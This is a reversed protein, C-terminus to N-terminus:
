GHGVFSLIVPGEPAVFDELSFFVKALLSFSARHAVHVDGLAAGAAARGIDAAAGFRFIFRRGLLVALALLVLLSGPALWLGCLPLLSLSSSLRPRWPPHARPKEKRVADLLEGHGVMVRLLAGAADGRSLGLLVLLLPRYGAAVRVVFVFVRLDAAVDIAAAIFIDRLALLPRADVVVQGALGPDSGSV